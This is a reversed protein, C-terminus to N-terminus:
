KKKVNLACNYTYFSQKYSSPIPESRYKNVYDLLSSAEALFDDKYWELIKSLQVTKKADDVKIFYKNNMAKKTLSELQSEIKSPQFAYNALPPCSKAACVLAFHSRADKFVPRVKKNEIDSLTLSQGAVTFKKKDFFGDVDLPKAIPYHDVVNKIVLINYANMMFAKQTSKGASSYGFGAVMKVLENLEAPDAKIGAYDVRGYSVNKKMFADAKTFFSGQAQTLGVTFLSLLLLLLTKKM